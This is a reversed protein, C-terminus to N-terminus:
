FSNLFICTDHLFLQPLFTRLFRLAERGRVGQGWCPVIGDGEWTNVWRSGLRIGSATTRYRLSLKWAGFGSLRALFGLAREQPELSVRGGAGGRAEMSPDEKGDRLGNQEPTQRVGWFTEDHPCYAKLSLVHCWWGWREVWIQPTGM